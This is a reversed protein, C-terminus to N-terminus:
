DSVTNEFNLGMRAPDTIRKINPPPPPVEGAGPAPALPGLDPAAAPDVDAAQENIYQNISKYREIESLIKKDLSM